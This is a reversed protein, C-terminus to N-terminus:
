ALFIFLHLSSARKRGPRESVSTFFLYTPPHTPPHNLKEKEQTHTSPLYLLVLRSSRVVTPQSHTPLHIFLSLPPSRICVSWGGMWGDVWGWVGLKCYSMGVAEEEEVKRACLSLFFLVENVSRGVWGGM